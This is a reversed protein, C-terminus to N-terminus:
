RMAPKAAPKQGQRGAAIIAPAAMAALCAYGSDSLHFRDWSLAARFGAPDEAAWHKMLTYRSLLTARRAAAADGVASVFTEYRAIDTIAPFYQQDIVMVASGAAAIADLGEGVLQQLGAPNGGFIVDNTGVQWVVLHPVPAHAMFAKLRRLTGPATEGSVGANVVEVAGEGWAGALRAALQSPFNAQATSAGVGATSSSGIALIRVTEGSRLAQAGKTMVLAPSPRIGSPCASALGPVVLAAALVLNRLLKLSM